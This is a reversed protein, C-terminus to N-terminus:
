SGSYDRVELIKGQFVKLAEQVVYNELSEKRIKEKEQHRKEKKKETLTKSATEKGDHHAFRITLERNLCRRLVGRIRDKKEVAMDYYIKKKFGIVLLGTEEKELFGQELISGAVPSAQNACNVIAEWDSEVEIPPESVSSFPRDKETGSATGKGSMKGKASDKQSMKVSDGSSIRKELEELRVLIQQFGLLSEIRTMRILTMELAFRPHSSNRIQEGARTLEEMFGLLRDEEIRDCVKQLDDTEERSLSVVPDPDKLVKIMLLDRLYALLANVFEMLDQGRASLTNVINLVQEANQDILAEVCGELVERDVLGLVLRVEEPSIRSGCFSIAQDLLSQADRMSGESARAIIRAADADLSFGERGALSLLLDAVERVSIRRFDFCQCRSQITIPVRHSETTAFVFIVHPPPEELTKLLANFASKSLMHVEDIIYVKYRTRAPAYLVNERLERIDDVGTNSAGDIEIVDVSSGRTIELCNQCENCPSPTPGRECNLAKALIRAMTTKGVGRMGSFLFGHAIRKAQIANKLTRTIHDQGVVDEFTQPRYKRALVQYSM